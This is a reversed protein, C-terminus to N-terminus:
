IFFEREESSSIKEMQIATERLRTKVNMIKGLKFKKGTVCNASEISTVLGGGNLNQHGFGGFLYNGVRAM